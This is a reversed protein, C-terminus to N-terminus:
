KYDKYESTFITHRLMFKGSGADGNPVAETYIVSKIPLVLTKGGVTTPAFDIRQDEQHVVDTNKFDAQTILRVVIGTDPDIFIEGHYPVTTKYPKFSNNTQFNGSAGGGTGGNLSGVSASTFNARGTSEFEPFCCYNVAYHSKKKDVGFSYVAATKGNITEWRLWKINGAAEAEHFVTSLVPGQGLLSIYGNQGWPTKDKVLPNQEAGNQITVPTESSNIYRIFQSNAALAPDSSSDGKAGSHLGSGASVVEQREQFRITTKTATLTPLQAYTKTAYDAAKDLIAKQAAADPAPTSPLDVAPPALTASRAELVYIQETTYPGAAYQALSNMASRTLEETLEVEKLANAVDQDTKKEQQLSALLEQLQQVTIKKAAWAPSAAMLVVLIWGFRKM